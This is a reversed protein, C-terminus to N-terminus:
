WLLGGRRRIEVAFSNEKEWEGVRGSESWVRVCVGKREGYEVCVRELGDWLLENGGGGCGGSGSSWCVGRSLQEGVGKDLTPGPATGSHSKVFLRGESRGFVAEM